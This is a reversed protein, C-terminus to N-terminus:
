PTQTTVVLKDAASTVVSLGNAFMSDFRFSGISGIPLVFYASAAKDQFTATGTLAIPCIVTHVTVNGSAAIVTTAASSIYKPIFQEFM